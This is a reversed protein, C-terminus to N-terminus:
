IYQVTALANTVQFALQGKMMPYPMKVRTILELAHGTFDVRVAIYIYLPRGACKMLCWSLVAALLFLSSSYLVTM